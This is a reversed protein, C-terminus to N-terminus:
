FWYESKKTNIRNKMDAILEPIHDPNWVYSYNESEQLIISFIEEIYQNKNKYIDELNYNKFINSLSGYFHDKSEQIANEDFWLIESELITKIRQKFELILFEQIDFNESINQQESIRKDLNNEYFTKTRNIANM